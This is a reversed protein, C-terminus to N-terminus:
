WDAEFEADELDPLPFRLIAAIGTLQNLQEGSAHMGSFVHVTGGGATVEDVLQVFQKRKKVDSTRFLSDTILLTQIAGMEHAAHVHGPGYFARSSDHALMTMFDALAQVEKAAKTDKIQGAVVSSALVEKISHKYASSASALLIKSKNLMLTRLERRQAEKDLYERFQDKAFGPGAIVLCRVIDWDVHRVVAAFVKDYFSDMAKDYGAAAAGRKRPVNAEVKARTLTCTSGVLCLHALGETILLVALDASAAPDSATRVREVDVSDWVDKHLTFARHLELEITHYAGLRVHENETLNRGKLRIQQGEADYEVGQVAVMLKLKVRESESGTGLDKQVKRFTTAEVRDGELILNYAHWLDEGEEPVMKAWGPGEKIIQKALLKM